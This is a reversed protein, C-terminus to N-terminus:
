GPRRVCLLVAPKDKWLDSAKMAEASVRLDMGAGIRYEATLGEVVVNEISSYSAVDEGIPPPKVCGCLIPPVPESAIVGKFVRGDKIGVDAISVKMSKLEMSHTSLHNLTHSRFRIASTADSFKAAHDRKMAFQTTLTVTTSALLKALTKGSFELRDAYQMLMLDHLYSRLELADKQKQTMNIRDMDDSNLAKLTPVDDWCEEVLRPVLEKLAGDGVFEEVSFSGM